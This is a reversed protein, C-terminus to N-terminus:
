SNLQLDKIYWADCAFHESGALPEALLSFGQKQYFRNAAAMTQLTELYCQKYYLKAFDLATQLLKSAIGTGRTSTTLYMKQLECVEDSEDFAAIGCGGLVEGDEEVIWYARNEAANYYSYLDHMSADAWALGDRNGGYEILCERIIREIPGNDSIQIQRINM